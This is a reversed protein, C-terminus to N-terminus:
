FNPFRKFLYNSYIIYIDEPETFMDKGIFHKVIQANIMHADEPIRTGIFTNQNFLKRDFEKLYFEFAEYINYKGKIGSLVLDKNTDEYKIVKDLDIGETIKRRIQLLHTGLIQSTFIFSLGKPLFAKIRPRFTYIPNNITPLQIEQYNRIILSEDGDEIEKRRREKWYPVCIVINSSLDISSLEDVIGSSTIHTDDDKQFIKKM